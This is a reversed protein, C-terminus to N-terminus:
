GFLELLRDAEEDLQRVDARSLPAFPELRIAGADHRWTGAVQGDVLFAAFSHPARVHFIRSRHAEPLIQARRAHVLLVAEWHGIFRVPAPTDPDPLPADPLDLLGRGGEDRFRRLELAALAPRLATVGIGTFSSIDAATAPGFGGLYRRVLHVIAEREDIAAPPPLWDDALGYLDARRREWTGSPPVRVLDVWLGARGSAEPPVGRAAMRERLDRERLPGDALTERLAAAAAEVDIAEAQSRWARLWWAQRARRVAIAMPWYDAASVTHITVRMLTAQIARRAELADTLMPRQFGKMRSWLGVYGSPAYQTQLGAVQELVAPLPLTTRELLLQRALVARNLSRATLVPDTPM